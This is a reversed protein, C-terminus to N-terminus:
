FLPKQEAPPEIVRQNASSVRFTSGDPYSLNKKRGSLYVIVKERELTRLVETCHSYKYDTEELVFRRIADSAAETEDFRKLIAHKLPTLDPELEFLMPQGTAFGEFQIGSLPAVTWMAEKMVELGRYHHTGFMLYYGMRGRDVNMVGFSSVYSFHAQERLQQKYFDRLADNRELGRLKKFTRLNEAKTGFLEAFQSGIVPHDGTVFRTVDQIMFNFLVECGGLGLLERIVSMPVGKWGFPDIFAFTPVYQGKNDAIMQNAVQLFDTNYFETSVNTPKGESRRGWYSEVEKKLNEYREKDKEVFIFRFRTANLNNFSRHDVLTALAIIPSGPEGGKYVGPGAFGDLFIVQNVKRQITLIPFWAELYNRLLQHKARTHEGLDWITERVM